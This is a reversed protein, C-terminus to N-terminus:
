SEPLGEIPAAVGRAAVPIWRIGVLRLFHTRVSGTVVVEVSDSRPHVGGTRVGRRSLWMSGVRKARLPDLVVRRGGSSYLISTDIEGAAALAASDAANQLTRRLLLARTGDLALGSVALVVIAMGIVLVAVQGRERGRGTM